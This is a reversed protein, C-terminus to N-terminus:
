NVCDKFYNIGTNKSIRVRPLELKSAGKKVRGGQTTFALKIGCDKLADMANQNWHGFPYCFVSTGGKLYSRSTEIDQVIKDHSWTMIRGKGDSGAEHMEHSHTEYDIYDYSQSQTKWGYWDTVVFSTANVKYKQLLPIALEFFSDDGDDMTLIVSKEPLEIEGDIYKELEVWSPYYFENETLYKLEEEFKETSLWNNDRIWDGEEDYFFHYMLVPIGNSAKERVIYTRTKETKNGAADEVEYKMEYKGPTDYDINGSVKIKDSIDGDVDDTAIAVEDVYKNGVALVIREKQFKIEPATKDSSNNNKTESSINATNDDCIDCKNQKEKNIKVVAFIILAIGILVLLLKGKNIGNNNKKSRKSM